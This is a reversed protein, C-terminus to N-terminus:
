CLNNCSLPLHENIFPRWGRSNLVACCVGPPVITKNDGLPLTSESGIHICPHFYPTSLAIILARSAAIVASREAAAAPTDAVSHAAYQDTLLVVMNCIHVPYISRYTSGNWHSCRSGLMKEISCSAEMELYAIIQRTKFCCGVLSLLSLDLVSVCRHSPVHQLSPFTPYM